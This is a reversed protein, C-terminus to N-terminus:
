FFNRQGLSGYLKGGPKGAWLFYAKGYYMCSSADALFLDRTGLLFHKKDLLASCHETIVRFLIDIDYPKRFRQSAIGTTFRQDGASTSANHNRITVNKLGLVVGYRM